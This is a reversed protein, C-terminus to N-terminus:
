SHSWKMGILNIGNEASIHKIWNQVADNRKGM